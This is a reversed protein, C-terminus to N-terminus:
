RGAELLHAPTELGHANLRAPSYVNAECFKWYRSRANERWQRMPVLLRVAQWMLRPALVPVPVTLGPGDAREVARRIEAQSYTHQDAVNFVGPPLRGDAAWLVAEAGNRRSCLSYRRGRPDLSFYLPKGSSLPRVRKRINHLWEESYMTAMRLIVIEIRDRRAECAAEARIKSEGYVGHAVSPTDERVVPPLDYDGYVMVSSIFVFRRVGHAIAADLMHEVGGVNTARCLDAALQGPHVHALAAAHVVVEPRASAVARDCSEASTIDLPASAPSVPASRSAGVVDHGAARLREVIAPGFFGTAGTVLIRM